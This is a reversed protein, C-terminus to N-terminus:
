CLAQRSKSLRRFIRRMRLHSVSPTVDINFENRLTEGDLVVVALYVEGRLLFLDRSEFDNREEGNFVFLATTECLLLSIFPM